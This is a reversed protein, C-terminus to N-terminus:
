KSPVVFFEGFMERRAVWPTQKGNSAARVRETVYDVLEGVETAGSRDRDPASGGLAELLASTFLGHGGALEVAKPPPKDGDQWALELGRRAGSSEDVPVEFSFQSGRAASFIFVGARDGAALQRALDENPAVVETTLYGSHCADLMMLVRGRVGSLSRQIKDWGVGHKEAAERTFEAQHTMFVMKGEALKAGHGAFFVVALDDPGMVRLSDVATEVSKVTVKEDLLVSTFVKAFPKNPGTHRMLAEAISTADDDAFDLQQEPPMNTYKSVGIAVVYLNPKEASRSTSIVDLEQTNSAQGAADYAVLTVRNQGGHLPVDLAAHGERACVLQEAVPRGDVFARVRDVRSASSAFTRLAIVRENTRVVGRPADEIKLRPPRALSVDSPSSEGLLRRGVVDPKDYRAAFREFTFGELPSSFSWAISRAGDISSQYSGDPTAAIWEGNPTAVLTATVGGNEDVFSTAGGDGGMVFLDRTPHLAVATITNDLATARARMTMKPADYLTPRVGGIFIKDKRWAVPGYADLHHTATVRGTATDFVLLVPVYIQVKQANTELRRTSLLLSKGDPSFTTSRAHGDLAGDPQKTSGLQITQLPTTWAVKGTDLRMLSLSDNGVLAIQDGKPSMSVWTADTTAHGITKGTPPSRIGSKVPEIAPTPGSLDWKDVLVDHTEDVVPMGNPLTKTKSVERTIKRSVTILDTTKPLFGAYRVDYTPHVVWNRATLATKSERVRVMSGGNTSVFFAGHPAYAMTLTRGRDREQDPLPVARAGTRLNWRGLEGLMSGTILEDAAPNIAIADIGTERGEITRVPRMTAADRADMITGMDSHTSLYRTSPDYRRAAFVVTSEDTSAAILEARVPNTTPLSISTLNPLAFATVDGTVTDCIWLRDGALAMHRYQGPLTVPPKNAALSYQTITGVASRIYVHDRRFLIQAPVDSLSAYNTALRNIVTGKEMDVIVAEGPATVAIRKQTEDFAVDLAMPSKTGLPLDLLQKRNEVDFIALKDVAIALKKGDNSLSFSGYSPTITRPADPRDLDIIRIALGEPSGDPAYYALRKGDASLSLGSVFFGATGLKRLLIGARVDWIRVTGDLGASALTRGDASLAIRLIGREHGNQLIFKASSDLVPPPAEEPCSAVPLETIPGSLDVVATSKPGNKPRLDVGSRPLIPQVTASCGAIILMGLLAHILPRSSFRIVARLM